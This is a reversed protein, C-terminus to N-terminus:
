LFHEVPRIGSLLDRTLKYIRYKRVIMVVLQYVILGLVIGFVTSKIFNNLSDQNKKDNEKGENSKGEDNGKGKDSKGEEDKDENGNKNKNANFISTIKPLGIVLFLIILYFIQVINRHFKDTGQELRESTLTM